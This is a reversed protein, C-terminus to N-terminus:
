LIEPSDLPRVLYGPGSEAKAVVLVKDGKKLNGGGEGLRARLILFKGSTFVEIEGFERDLRASRVVGESGLVEAVTEPKRFMRALPRLPVILLRTAIFAGLVVPLLLVTARGGEFGPNFYHNLGVNLSWLLLSFLSLLFILPVDTAGVFKMATHLVGGGHGTNAGEPFGEHGDHSGGGDFGDGADVGDGGDGFGEGGDGGGGELDVLGFLAVVWYLAV